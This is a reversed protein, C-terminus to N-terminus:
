GQADRLSQVEFALLRVLERSTGSVREVRGGLLPAHGRAAGRAPSGCGDRRARDRRRRDHARRARELLRAPDHELDYLDVVLRRPRRSSGVRVVGRDDEAHWAWAGEATYGRLAADFGSGSTPRGRRRGDLGARTAGLLRRGAPGDRRGALREFVGRRVPISRPQPVALRPELAGRRRQGDLHGGVLDPSCHRPQM